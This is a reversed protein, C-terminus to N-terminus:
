NGHYLNKNMWNILHNLDKGKIQDVDNYLDGYYSIKDSAINILLRVNETRWSLDITNDCCPNIDPLMHNVCNAKIFDIAKTDIENTIPLANEGDWGVPLEM